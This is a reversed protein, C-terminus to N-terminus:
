PLSRRLPGFSRPLGSPVAWRLTSSSSLSKVKHGAEHSQAVHNAPQQRAALPWCAGRGWRQLTGGVRGQAHRGEAARACNTEGQPDSSGSAPKTLHRSHLTQRSDQVSSVGEGSEAGGGERRASGDAAHGVVRARRRGVVPRLRRNEQGDEGRADHSRGGVVGDWAGGPLRGCVRRGACGGGPPPWPDRQTYLPRGRIRGRGQNVELNDRCRCGGGGLVDWVLARALM